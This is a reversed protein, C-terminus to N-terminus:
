IQKTTMRKQGQINPISIVFWWLRLCSSHRGFKLLWKIINSKSTLMKQWPLFFFVFLLVFKSFVLSMLIKQAKYHDPYNRFSDNNFIKLLHLIWQLKISCM